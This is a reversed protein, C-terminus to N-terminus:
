PIHLDGGPVGVRARGGDVVPAALVEVAVGGVDDDGEDGAASASGGRPPVNPYPLRRIAQSNHSARQSRAAGGSGDNRGTNSDRGLPGLGDHAIAECELGSVTRKLM